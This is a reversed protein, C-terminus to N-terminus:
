RVYNLVYLNDAIKQSLVIEKANIRVTMSHDFPEQDVITIEDGLAIQQKDLFQLFQTSSDCVGIFRYVQNIAAHSLLLREQKAIEGNANPIPDGHPDFSPFGLYKDLRSVLTDSQIHELEDAIEHVEDWSFDLKEVLFVEWLRHKRIIMKAKQNGSDTLTVGQYKQYNVWKKEALKKLMDTVSSAKTELTTAIANTSVGMPTVQSLHYIVKIYNEESPSMLKKQKM